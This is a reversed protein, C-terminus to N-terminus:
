ITYNNSQCRKTPLMIYRGPTQEDTQRDRRCVWRLEDPAAHSAALTCKPRDFLLVSMSTNIINHNTQVLDLM